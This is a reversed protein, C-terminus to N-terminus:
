ERINSEYKGDLYPPLNGGYEEYVQRSDHM